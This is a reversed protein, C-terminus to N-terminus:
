GFIVNPHEPSIADSLTHMLQDYEEPTPNQDVPLPRDMGKLGPDRTQYFLQVKKRDRHGAFGHIRDWSHFAKGYRIGVTSIELSLTTRAFWRALLFLGGAALMGSIGGVFAAGAYTKLSWTTQPIAFFLHRLGFGSFALFLLGGLLASPKRYTYRGTFFIQSQADM